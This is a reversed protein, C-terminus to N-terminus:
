FQKMKETWNSKPKRWATFTKVRNSYHIALNPTSCTVKKYILKLRSKGSMMRLESQEPWAGVEGLLM